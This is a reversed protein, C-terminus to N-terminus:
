KVKSLDFSTINFSQTKSGITKEGDGTIMVTAKGKSTNFIYNCSYSKADVQNGNLEVKIEPRKANSDFVIDKANLVTIKAKSLDPLASNKRYVNYKARVFGDYNGKGTIEAYVTEVGSKAFTVKNQANMEKTCSDDTYYKVSFDSKSLKVGDIEVVPTQMFVGSAACNTKDPIIIKADNILSKCVDYDVTKAKLGKYNGIFSITYSAKKNTGETVKKNGSYKVTYDKGETLPNQTAVGDERNEILTVYITDPKAGAKSYMVSEQSATVEINGNGNYPLITYSKTITGAYKGIGAVTFKHAGADVTNLAEYLEYDTGQKLEVGTKSDCVKVVPLKGDGDYYIKDKSVDVKLSSMKDDVVKVPIDVYEKFNGKGEIRLTGDNSWKYSSSIKTAEGNESVSYMEYDSAKLPIGNSCITFVAKTGKTVNIVDPYNCGYVSLKNITFPVKLSKAYNGKGKIVISPANKETKDKANVNNTYSLTYDVGELLKHGYAMVTVEPEHKEGTYIPDNDYVIKFKGDDYEHVEVCEEIFEAHLYSYEDSYFEYTGDEKESLVYVDGNEKSVTVEAVKYGDDPVAHVTVKGTESDVDYYIEGNVTEKAFVPTLKEYVELSQTNSLTKTDKNLNQVNVAFIVAGYEDFAERKLEIKKEYYRSEGIGLGEIPIYTHEGEALKGGYNDFGYLDDVFFKLVDYEEAVANGDNWVNAYIYLGDERYEFGTDSVEYSPKKKLGDYEYVSTEEYNNESSEVIIKADTVDAPAVWEVTYTKKVSPLLVDEPDNISKILTKKGNVLSYFDLTYGVAKDLGENKVTANITVVENELPLDNSVNVDTVNVTGKTDMTAGVLMFDSIKVPDNKDNVIEQKYSSFMAYLEGNGDSVVVPEDACRLMNSMKVANSWSGGTAESGPEIRKVSAESDYAAAYLEKVHEGNFDDQAVDQTWVIYTKEDDCAVDYDDIRLNSDGNGDQNIDISRSMSPIENESVTGNIISNLKVTYLNEQNRYWFLDIETETIEETNDENMIRVDHAVLKPITDSIDNDNTIRVPQKMVHNKFDYEQIFVDKDNPTNIDSDADITFAFIAKDGFSSCTIDVINAVTDANRDSTNLSLEALTNSVFRQGYYKESMAKKDFLRGTIESDYDYSESWKGNEYLRYCVVCNNTYPNMVDTYDGDKSTKLYLVMAQNSSKDYACVPASDYMEDDTLQTIEHVTDDSTDIFAAYIDMSKLYETVDEKKRKIDEDSSVWTIMVKGDNMESINPTHDGKTSKEDIAKPTSWKGNKNITYKLVTRDQEGKSKDSDIFAAFISGDSLRLMKVSPHEYGNKEIVSISENAISNIHTKLDDPMWVPKDYSPANRFTPTGAVLQNNLSLSQTVPDNANNEDNAYEEVSGFNFDKITWYFPVTTLLLDVEIGADFSLQAGWDSYKDSPYYMGMLNFAICGRAGIVNCVGVGVYVKVQGTLMARADLNTMGSYDLGNKMVEEFTVRTDDTYEPKRKAGINGVFGVEAYVGWYCPIYVIPLLAYWTVQFSLGAGFRIGVGIFIIKSVHQDGVAVDVRRFDITIGVELSYDWDPAGLSADMISEFVSADKFIEKTDSAMKKIRAGINTAKGDEKFKFNDKIAHEKSGAPLGPMEFADVLSVGISIRYGQGLPLEEVHFKVLPVAELASGLTGIVPVDLVEVKMCQNFGSIDQPVPPLSETTKNTFSYNTDAEEYECTNVSKGDAMCFVKDTTLKIFIRDGVVYDKSPIEVKFMGKEDTEVGDYKGKEVAGKADYVIFKVNTVHETAAEETVTGDNNRVSKKYDVGEKANVTFEVSEDDIVLNYQQAIRNTSVTIADYIQGHDTNIVVNKLDKEIANISVTKEKFDKDYYKIGVTKKESLEPLRTDCLIMNGNRSVLYRVKKDAVGREYNSVLHGKPDLSKGTGGVIVKADKLVRFTSDASKQAINYDAYSFDGSLRYYVVDKNPIEVYSLYVTNKGDVISDYKLYFLNGTYEDNTGDSRWVIGGTQSEVNDYGNDLLKAAFSYIVGTSATPYIKYEMYTVNNEVVEIGGKKADTQMFVGYSTDFKPIDDKKIRLNIGSKTTKFLPTIEYKNALLRHGLESSTEIYCSNNEDLSIIGVPKDDKTLYVGSPAYVSNYQDYMKITLKLCDGKHYNETTSSDIKYDKGSINFYGYNNKPVNITVKSDKYNFRPYLSVKGYLPHCEPKTTDRAFASTLSTNREFDYYKLDNQIRKASLNGILGDCFKDKTGEHKSYYMGDVSFFPEVQHTSGSNQTFQIDEDAFYIGAKGATLGVISLYTDDATVDYTGDEKLFKPANALAADADISVEFPRMIPTIKTIRLEKGNSRGSQTTRSHVDLCKTDIDPNFYNGNITGDHPIFSYGDSWGKDNVRIRIDTDESANKGWGKEGEVYFGDYINPYDTKLDFQALLWGSYWWFNDWRQVFMNKQFGNASDSFHGSDDTRSPKLSVDDKALKITALNRMQESGTSREAVDVNHKPEITIKTKETVINANADEALCVNFSSAEDINETNIPIKIERKNIGMPFILSADVNSFDRGKVATIGETTVQIDSITNTVGSREVTIVAENAEYDIYSNTVSIDPAKFEEDDAITGAFSSAGSVYADGEPNSLMMYFYRDNDAKNNNIPKIAIYRESVGEDFQIRVRSCEIVSLMTNVMKQSQEFVDSAEGLTQVEGYEGTFSARADQLEDGYVEKIGTNATLEEDTNEPVEETESYEESILEDLDDNNLGAEERLMEVSNIVNETFAEKAEEDKELEEVATEEDMYQLETPENGEIVSIFSSAGEPIDIKEDKKNNVISITYDKGFNSTYDAVMLEVSAASSVDGGRGIKLYYEAKSNEPITAMGSAFYFLNENYVSDPLTVEDIYVTQPKNEPTALANVPMSTITLAGALVMSILRKFYNKIRM